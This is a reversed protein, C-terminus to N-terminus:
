TQIKGTVDKPLIHCIKIIFYTQTSHLPTTQCIVGNSLFPKTIKFSFRRVQSINGKEDFLM